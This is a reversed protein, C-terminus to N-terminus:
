EGKSIIDTIISRANDLVSQFEEVTIDDPLEFGHEIVGGNDLTYTDKDIAVIRSHAELYEMIKEKRMYLYNSKLFLYLINAFFDLSILFNNIM